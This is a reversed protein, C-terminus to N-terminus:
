DAPIPILPNKHSPNNVSMNQRQTQWRGYWHVFYFESDCSIKWQRLVRYVAARFQRQIEWTFPTTRTMFL